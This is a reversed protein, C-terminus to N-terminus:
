FQTDGGTVAWSNSADHTLQVEAGNCTYSKLHECPSFFFQFHLIVFKNFNTYALLFM